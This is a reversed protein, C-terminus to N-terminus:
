KSLKIERYQVVFMEMWPSHSCRCRDDREIMPCRGLSLHMWEVSVRVCMIFADSVTPLADDKICHAKLFFLAGKLTLHFCPSEKRHRVWTKVVGTTEQEPQGRKCLKAALDVLISIGWHWELRFYCYILNSVVGRGVTDAGACYRNRRIVLKRPALHRWSKSFHM